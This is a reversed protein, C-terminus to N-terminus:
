HLIRLFIQNGPQQPQSGSLIRRRLSRGRDNRARRASRAKRRIDYAVVGVWLEYSPELVGQALPLPLYFRGLRVQDIEFLFRLYDELLGPYQTPPDRDKSSAPSRTPRARRSRSRRRRRTSRCPLHVVATDLDFARGVGPNVAREADSIRRRIPRKTPSSLRRRNSSCGSWAWRPTRSMSLRGQDSLCGLAGSRGTTENGTIYPAKEPNALPIAEGKSNFRAIM